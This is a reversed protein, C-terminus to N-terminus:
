NLYHGIIGAAIAIAFVIGVAIAAYIGLKAKM